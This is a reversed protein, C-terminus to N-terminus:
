DTEADGADNSADGADECEIQYCRVTGLAPGRECTCAGCGELARFKDGALYGADGYVCDFETGCIDNGRRPVGLCMIGVHRGGDAAPFSACGCPYCCTSSPGGICNRVPQGIPVLGGDYECADPGPAPAPEAETPPTSKCCVLLAVVPSFSLMLAFWTRGGM